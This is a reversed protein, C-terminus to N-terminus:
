GHKPASADGAPAAPEAAPYAVRSHLMNLLTFTFSTKIRALDDLTLAAEDLQGEAIRDRFIRDLLEALQPGTVTRLSRTAAEVADALSVIASEKFRPLPGDYRFAAEDVPTGAPAAQAAKRACFRIVSTGHHQRIVDLVARPLGHERALEVGRTVHAKILAASHHPAYTDHPNAGDRQNETFHQPDATKGIDHFLACVRALLANAGINEAAGEALQAVILSHHYTGPADLQMRHLLPHNHDTLELLTIDTTRKFLSELVPLLGAVAIGTALGTLLAAATQSLLTPWAVQNVLGLLLAFCAVVLGGLGAARVIRSRRRIHQSAFIGTVSALFTLVVLDLRQGYTLGTFISILLAMFIASGADILIAVILPALATPVIYPLLTAASVNGAFFPLSALSYSGRVLALNIIVVLALLGLRTNSVFTERDELRIYFVSALVMALVLLVRLFLQNGQETALRGSAELHRRYAQLMEVQAPSITDGPQIIAQGAVVSVTAPPLRSLIETRLRATAAEDYVLNPQLGNRLLRFFAHAATRDAAGATLNVRLYTLAEEMGQVHTESIDGDARLLRFLSIPGASEPQDHVGEAYIERLLALGRQLYDARAPADGYAHLAALDAPSARYPGRANFDRALAALDTDSPRTPGLRELGALLHGAAETFRTLPTDDIRYAPPIRTLARERAQAAAIESEYSFSEVAVVRAQALQGAQVPLIVPNLGSSSIAVIAVVTLVFIAVSVLRNNELFDRTASPPPRAPGGADLVKIPPPPMM